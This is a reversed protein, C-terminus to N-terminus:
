LDGRFARDLISPLLGDLITSTEEQFSALIELRGRITRIGDAIRRQDALPPAPIPLERITTLVLNQNGVGRTGARSCKRVPPSNLMHEAFEPDLRSRDLKLLALSVFLSFERDVDVAKALGTTGIKTLLVDGREPRCRRSLEAHQEPSIFRTQDFRIEGSSVDKVSLFPVGEAVYRPTRHAGDTIQRCLSGLPETRGALGWAEDYAVRLVAALLATLDARSGRRLARAEEIRPAIQDIRAVVRRQEALGPLPMESALFKDEKLRVRNTTGESARRCIEAFERSRSWWELYAPFLRKPDIDFAPFDHSVMAGDLEPPVLGSAGHRADIRSLVFQGSRVRLRRGSIASGPVERRLILGQGHLRITVEKYNRNPDLSVWDTSRTLVQGIPQHRATM